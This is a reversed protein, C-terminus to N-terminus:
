YTMCTHCIAVLIVSHCTVDASSMMFAYHLPLVLLVIHMLHHQHTSGPTLTAKFLTARLVHLSCCQHEGTYVGQQFLDLLMVQGGSGAAM